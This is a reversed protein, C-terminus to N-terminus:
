IFCLIIFLPVSPGFLRQQMPACVQERKRRPQTQVGGGKEVEEGEPIVLIVESSGETLLCLRIAPTAPHPVM